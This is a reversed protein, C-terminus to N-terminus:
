ISSKCNYDICSHHFPNFLRILRMRKGLLTRSSFLYIFLSFVPTQMLSPLVSAYLTKSVQLHLRSLHRYTAFIVLNVPSLLSFVLLSMRISVAWNMHNTVPSNVFIALPFEIFLSWIQRYHLMSGAINVHINVGSNNLSSSQHSKLSSFQSWNTLILRFGEHSKYNSDNRAKVVAITLFSVLGKKVEDEWYYYRHSAHFLYFQLSLLRFDTYM